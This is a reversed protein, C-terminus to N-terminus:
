NFETTNDKENIHLIVTYYKIYSSSKVNEINLYYKNEDINVEKEKIIKLRKLLM